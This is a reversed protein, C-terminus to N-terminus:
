EIECAKGHGARWGQVMSEPWPNYHGWHRLGPSYKPVLLFYGCSAKPGCNPLPSQLSYDHVIVLLIKLLTFHLFYMPGGYFVIPFITAVPHRREDLM